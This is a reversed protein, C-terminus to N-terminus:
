PEGATKKKLTERVRSVPIDVNFFLTFRQNTRADVGEFTCWRHIGEQILAVEFPGQEEVQGRFLPLLVESMSIVVYASAKSKGNGSKEISGILGELIFHHYAAEDKHGLEKHARYAHAHALADTYNEDLMKGAISLVEQYRHAATAAKISEELKTDPGRFEPSNVFAMRFETFDVTKDGSKLRQVLDLYPDGHPAQGNSFGLCLVSFVSLALLKRM